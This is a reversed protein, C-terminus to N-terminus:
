KEGVRYSVSEFQEKTVIAKISDKHLQYACMGKLEMAGGKKLRSGM